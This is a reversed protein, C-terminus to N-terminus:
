RLALSVQGSAAKRGGATVSASCEYIGGDAAQSLAATIVIDDGPLVPRLFRVRSIGLFLPTKGANEPLSLLILDAAQAMAKKAEVVPLPCAMGKADVTTM